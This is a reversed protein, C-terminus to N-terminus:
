RGEGYLTEHISVLDEDCLERLWRDDSERAGTTNCGMLINEYEKRLTIEVKDKEYENQIRLQNTNEYMLYALLVLLMGVVSGVLRIENSIKM